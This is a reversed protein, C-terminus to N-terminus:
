LNRVLSLTVAMGASRVLKLAVPPRKTAMKMLKIVRRACTLTAMRTLVNRTREHQWAKQRTNRTDVSRYLFLPRQSVDQDLRGRPKWHLPWCGCCCCHCSRGSWSLSVLREPIVALMLVRMLACVSICCVISCFNREMALVSYVPNCSISCLRCVTLSSIM